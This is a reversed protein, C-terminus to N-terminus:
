SRLPLPTPQKASSASTNQSATSPKDAKEPQPPSNCSSPRPSLYVSLVCETNVEWYVPNRTLPKRKVNRREFQVVNHIPNCEEPKRQANGDVAEREVSDDAKYEASRNM